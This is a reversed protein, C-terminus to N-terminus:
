PLCRCGSSSDDLCTLACIGCDFLYLISIMDSFAPGNDKLHNVLEVAKRPCLIAERWLGHPLRYCAPGGMQTRRRPAKTGHVCLGYIEGRTAMKTLRAALYLTATSAILNNVTPARRRCRTALINRCRHSHSLIFVTQAKYPQRSNQSRHPSNSCYLVLTWAKTGSSIDKM